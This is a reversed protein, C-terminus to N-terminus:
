SGVNKEADQAESGGRQAILRLFDGSLQKGEEAHSAWYAWSFAALAENLPLSLERGVVQDEPLEGPDSCLILRAM